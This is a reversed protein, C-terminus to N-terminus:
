FNASLKLGIGYNPKANKDHGPQIQVMAYSAASLIPTLRRQYAVQLDVQRGDPTLGINRTERRVNGELDHGVPLDLNADGSTVRLPQGAMLGLSDDGTFISSGVMSLAFANSRVPRWDSFLSGQAMSLHSIAATYSAGLTWGHWAPFQTSLSYFESSTQRGVAFIGASRSNLFSGEESLLGVGLSATIGGAFRLDLNSQFLSGRGLGVERDDVFGRVKRGAADEHSAGEFLGVSVRALSGLRRSLAAGRGRGILQFHPAQLRELGWLPSASAAAFQEGAAVNFGLRLSTHRDLRGDLLLAQTDARGVEHPEAFLRRSLERDEYRDDFSRGVSLSLRDSGSFDVWTRRPTGLLADLGLSISTHGVRDGLGITYSRDYDDLIIMSNLFGSGSLAPGFAPGFSLGTGSVDQRAGSVQTTLPVGAAGIPAIARGIDILGWGFVGDVGPAGLDLATTFLIDVVDTASISPFLDFLLAAAGSVHPAAFSTGSVTASGGGVATTLINAGPAVVYFDRVVGARNSFSSLGNSQNTAGVAIMRGNALPDSALFAPFLPNSGAENGAAVVIIVGRNTANQIAQELGPTSGNDGAVSLNIVRAGNDVAYNIAAAIDGDSFTDEVDSAKIALLRADFAVGHTDAGNRTAGIVGAVNTGHGDQDDVREPILSIIDVSSTQIRDRLEPHDLDIGTDIVAIIIGQGTAGAEYAPIANITGLGYNAQFETTDFDPPPASPGGPTGPGGGGSDDDKLSSGRTCGLTLSTLTILGVSMILRVFKKRRKM